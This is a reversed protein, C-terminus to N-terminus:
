IEIVKVKVQTSWTGRWNSTKYVAKDEGDLSHVVTVGKLDKAFVLAAGGDRKGFCLEERVV